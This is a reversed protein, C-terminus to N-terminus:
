FDTILKRTFNPWQGSAMSHARKGAKAETLPKCIVIFEEVAESIDKRKVSAVTNLYGTVVEGLNRGQLKGSAEAFESVAALLSVRRGISQQLADLRQFAALADRSQSATFAASTRRYITAVFDRATV